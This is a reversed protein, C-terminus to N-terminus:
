QRVALDTFRRKGDAITRRLNHLRKTLVALLASVELDDERQGEGVAERWAEICKIRAARLKV